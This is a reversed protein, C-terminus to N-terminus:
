GDPMHLHRELPHHSSDLTHCQAAQLCCSVLAAKKPESAIASSSVCGKTGVKRWYNEVCLIGGPPHWHNGTLPVSTNNGYATKGLNDKSVSLVTNNGACLQRVLIGVM